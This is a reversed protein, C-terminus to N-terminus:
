MTTIKDCMMMYEDRKRVPIFMVWTEKSTTRYDKCYGSAEATIIVNAAAFYYNNASSVTPTSLLGALHFESNIRPKSTYM